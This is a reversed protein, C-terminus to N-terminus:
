EGNNLAAILADAHKVAWEGVTKCDMNVEATILAAMALGAYHQRITLGLEM